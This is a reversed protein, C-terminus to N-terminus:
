IKKDGAFHMKKNTKKKNNIKGYKKPKHSANKNSTLICYFKHCAPLIKLALHVPHRPSWLTPFSCVSPSFFEFFDGWLDHLHLRALFLLFDALFLPFDTFGLLPACLLWLFLILWLPLFEPLLVLCTGCFYSFVWIDINIPMFIANM